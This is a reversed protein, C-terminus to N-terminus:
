RQMMSPRDDISLAAAPARRRREDLQAKSGLRQASCDLKM